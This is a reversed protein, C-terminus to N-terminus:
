VDSELTINDYVETVNSHESLAYLLKLASEYSEKNLSVFSKPLYELNATAVTYGLSQLAKSVATLESSNCIFKVYRQDGTPPESTSDSNSTPDEDVNTDSIYDSQVDEAGAEIAVELLDTSPDIECAPVNIVGKRDFM